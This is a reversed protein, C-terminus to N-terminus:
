AALSVVILGARMSMAVTWTLAVAPRHGRAGRGQRRNTRVRRPRHVAAPYQSAIDCSCISGAYLIDESVVQGCHPTALGAAACNQMAQPAESARLQGEHPASAGGCARKQM